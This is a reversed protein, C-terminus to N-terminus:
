NNVKYLYALAPLVDSTGQLRKLRWVLTEDELTIEAEGLELARQDFIELDAVKQDVDGLISLVGSRSGSNYNSSTVVGSIRGQNIETIELDIRHTAQIDGESSWQGVSSENFGPEPPSPEPTVPEVPTPGPTPPSTIPTSPSSPDPAPNESPSNALPADASSANDLPSNAPPTPPATSESSAPSSSFIKDWNQVAAVGLASFLGILAIIVETRVGKGQEGDAM